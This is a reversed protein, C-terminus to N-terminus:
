TKERAGTRPLPSPHSPDLTLEGGAGSGNRATLAEEPRAVKKPAAALRKSPALRDSWRPMIIRTGHVRKVAQLFYVSGAFPWWRDGAADMFAFRALWKETTVPPIYCGLQGAIIELGLLACWDKLRMMHIFRGNWPYGRKRGFPRRLGWLSWPNFCTIVVHAEARLVRAVERLVQHPNESFELVHPLLMLDASNSAIPLDRFDARLGASSDLDVRCRLLIRSARLLDLGTLGLQFANYGFVDAVSKDFYAQERELLYRGLPTAFWESADRWHSNAPM